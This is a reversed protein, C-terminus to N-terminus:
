RPSRIRIDTRRRRTTRSCAARKMPPHTHDPASRAFRRHGWPRAPADEALGVPRGRGDRDVPVSMEQGCVCGRPAARAHQWREDRRRKCAAACGRRGSPILVSGAKASKEKRLSVNAGERGGSLTADGRACYAEGPVRSRADPKLNRVHISAVKVLIQVLARELGASRRAKTANKKLFCWSWRRVAGRQARRLLGACAGRQADDMKSAVGNPSGATVCQKSAELKWPWTRATEM